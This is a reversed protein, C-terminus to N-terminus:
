DGTAGSGVRQGLIRGIIQRRTQLAADAAHLRARHRAADRGSGSVVATFYHTVATEYTKFTSECAGQAAEAIDAPPASLVDVYPDSEAVMCDQYAGFSTQLKGQLNERQPQPVGPQMSACGGVVVVAMALAVGRVM